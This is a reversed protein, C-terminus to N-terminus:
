QCRLERCYFGYSAFHFFKFDHVENSSLYHGLSISWCSLWNCSVFSFCTGSMPSHHLKDWFKSFMLVNFFPFWQCNMETMTLRYETGYRGVELKIIDNAQRVWSQAHLHMIKSYISVHIINSWSCCKKWPEHWCIMEIAAPLISLKRPLFGLHEGDSQIFISGSGSIDDVEITYVSCCFFFAEITLM